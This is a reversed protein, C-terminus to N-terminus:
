RNRLTRMVDGENRGRLHVVVRPHGSFILWDDLLYECDERGDGSNQKGKPLIQVVQLLSMRIIADSILIPVRVSM